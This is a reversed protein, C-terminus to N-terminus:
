STQYEEGPLTNVFLRAEPTLRDARWAAVIHKKKQFPPVPFYKIEDEDGFKTFKACLSMGRMERLIHFLTQMNPIFVFEKPCFGAQRCEDKYVSLSEENDLYGVRYFIEDALLEAPPMEDYKALPHQTSMALYLPFETIRKYTINKLRNLVFDYVIAIDTHGYELANRVDRYEALSEILAIDPYERAFRRIYDKAEEFIEAVDYISTYTFRLRRAQRRSMSRAETIAENLSSYLPDLIKFLYEGEETLSLGQNSRIFLRVGIREELRQLIMSLAPQSIYMTEAAKSLKMYKAITLFAEIQQTTINYM